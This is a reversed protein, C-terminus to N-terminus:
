CFSHKHISVIFVAARIHIYTRKQFNTESVHMSLCSLSTQIVITFIIGLLLCALDFLSGFYKSYLDEFLLQESFQSSFKNYVSLPLCYVRKRESRPVFSCQNYHALKNFVIHTRPCNLASFTLLQVM